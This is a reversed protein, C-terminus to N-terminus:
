RKRLSIGISSTDTERRTRCNEVCNEASREVFSWLPHSTVVMRCLHGEPVTGMGLLYVVPIELSEELEPLWRTESQQGM